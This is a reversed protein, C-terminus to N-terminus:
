GPPESDAGLAAVGSGSLPMAAVALIAVIVVPALLPAWDLRLPVAVAALAALTFGLLGAVSPMTMTVAQGGAAHRIVLYAAASLGSVAAFLVPPDTLAGGALTLLVAVTAAWRVFLGALVAVAAVGLTVLGATGAPWAAAVVMLVGFATSSLLPAPQAGAPASM